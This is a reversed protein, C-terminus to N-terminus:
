GFWRKWWKKVGGFVGKDQGNLEKEFYGSRSGYNYGYYGYGYGSYYSGEVKVDNLLISLKPLKNNSYLEEVFNIQKRFTHGHRVIYLTCDAFRSLNLADSVLGIPATDMIVVDFQERVEQMLENLLPDLLIEAPNPPIPGCPIVYLNDIENVKVVLEQFSSKGIIYNTIGAKRKLDLGSVIKPKRIDFEMIVTKKGTLAMVAAINTSVFSKGEGSFSSTVLIVPKEKKGIIYQLNTRIIRFQEGIFHRNNKGVVLAQENNSHGIEGLIPTQTIKEVDSRGRVKDQMVQLLAIIGIPIALGLIMYWMYIKKKDPTIPIENSMAPEIVKSNSITSASSMSTELKKQLLFSYLDELIKQQRAINLLQMSKGPLTQLKSNIQNEQDEIQKNAILYAQRVNMLAQYINARIKELATNMSQILPNGATTTKLNSERDLQLKNYDAVLQLLAPEEIGLNTPVVNYQNKSNQIYELLWDVIKLKVQQEAKDKAGNNITELFVKNQDDLNFAQYKAMYDKLNGQVGSLESKLNELRDDIFRLTIYSIRNKDEVILSDYVAMLTNLIDKGVKTNEGEYSLTLITAQDNAQAVKISSLINEVKDAIPLWGVDFQRVPFLHLGLMQNRTLSFINIGVQFPKGFHIPTKSEGLLFLSDNLMNVLFMAPKTSDMIRLPNVEFPRDEYTLTSRINGKSYEFVQLNLDNAVRKIVPRSRLIEIENNLNINGQNMFFSSFKSDKTDGGGLGGASEDKILLSAQVRYAPITYRIKVYALVAFVVASLIVMPLYHLNRLVLDKLELATKSGGLNQATTPATVVDKKTDPM